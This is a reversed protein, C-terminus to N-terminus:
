APMLPRRRLSFGRQRDCVKCENQWGAALASSVETMQWCSPRDCGQLAIRLVPETHISVSTPLHSCGLHVAPLTLPKWARVGVIM